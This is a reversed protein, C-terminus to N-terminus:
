KRFAAYVDEKYLNNELADLASMWQILLRETDAICGGIGVELNTYPRDTYSIARSAMSDGALVRGAVNNKIENNLTKNSAAMLVHVASLDQKLYGIQLMMKNIPAVAEDHVKKRLNSLM